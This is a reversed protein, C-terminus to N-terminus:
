QLLSIQEPPPPQQIRPAQEERNLRKFELKGARRVLMIPTNMPIYRDLVEYHSSGAEKLEHLYYKTQRM